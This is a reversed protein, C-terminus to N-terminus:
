TKKKCNGMPYQKFLNCLSISLARSPGNNKNPPHPTPSNQISQGNSRHGFSTLSGKKVLYKHVFKPGM